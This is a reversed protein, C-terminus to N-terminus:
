SETNVRKSQLLTLKTVPLQMYNQNPFPLDRGPFLFGLLIHLYAKELSSPNKWPANCGMVFVLGNIKPVTSNRM